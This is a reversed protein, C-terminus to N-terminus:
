EGFDRVTRIDIQFAAAIQEHLVDITAGKNVVAEVVKVEDDRGDRVLTCRLLQHFLKPM